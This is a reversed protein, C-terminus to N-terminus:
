PNETTGNWRHTVPAGSTGDHIIQIEGFKADMDNNSESFNVDLKM